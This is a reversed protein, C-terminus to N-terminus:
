VLSTYKANCRSQHNTFVGVDASSFGWGKSGRSCMSGKSGFRLFRKYTNFIKLGEERKFRKFRETRYQFSKYVGTQFGAGTSFAELRKFRKFV